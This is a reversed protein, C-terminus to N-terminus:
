PCLNSKFDTSILIPLIQKNAIYIHMKAHINQNVIWQMYNQALKYNTINQM